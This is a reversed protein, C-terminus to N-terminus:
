FPCEEVSFETKEMVDEFEFKCEDCGAGGCFVCLAAAEPKPGLEVRVIRTYKGEATVWIKSPVALGGGEAMDIARDVSDPMPDNSRLKWWLAAKKKAFGHHELCVWESVVANRVWSSVSGQRTVYEVRLTCPDDPFGGKKHHKRYRVEYVPLEDAEDDGSLVSEGGPTHNHKVETAPFEFGCDPCSRCGAACVEKCEPCTRIPADGKGKTKKAEIRLADIPGHQRINGAMDIVLCDAKGTAIRLGRGVQQVYMSASLTPRLMVVCDVGPADFGISVVNVSVLYKIKGSKFDAIMAAREDSPTSGVLLDSSMLRERVSEAHAVSSCFVLVSSRDATLKVISECALRVTDLGCVLAEVDEAVYEGGRVHLGSTDLEIPIKSRLKSLYGQEILQRVHAEYCVAQFLNDPGCIHGDMRFATATFGALKVNPNIDRMDAIFSRYRGEGDLPVLHVEDILILGINAFESAREYISQIGACIVDGETQRSSLGASYIGVRLEPCLRNITKATQELLEKVHACCLVRIGFSAAWQCVMAMVLSKGAGTPLVTVPSGDRYELFVQLARLAESQYPRPNM